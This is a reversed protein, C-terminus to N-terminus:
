ITLLFARFINNSSGISKTTSSGDRVVNLSAGNEFVPAPRASNKFRRYLDWEIGSEAAYIAKASNATDSSQRIRLLLLYGAITSALFMSAGLLLVTLLMIQGKKRNKIKANM